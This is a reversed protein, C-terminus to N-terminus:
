KERQTSVNPKGHLMEEKTAHKIVSLKPFAIKSIFYTYNYQHTITFCWDSKPGFTIQSIFYFVLAKYTLVVGNSEEVEADLALIVTDVCKRM